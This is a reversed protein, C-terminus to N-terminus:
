SWTRVPEHNILGQESHAITLLGDLLREQRSNVAPLTDGLVRLEVPVDPRGLAVEILTRNIALPTRLEHSANGV